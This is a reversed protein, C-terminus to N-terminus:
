AMALSTSFLTARASVRRRPGLQRTADMPQPGQSPPMTVGASLARKSDRPTGSMGSFRPQWISTSSTKPWELCGSTTSPPRGFGSRSAPSPTM